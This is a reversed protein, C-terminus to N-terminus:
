GRLGHLQSRAVYKATSTCYSGLRLNRDGHDDLLSLGTVLAWLNLVPIPRRAPRIVAGM